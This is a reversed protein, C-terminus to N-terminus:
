LASPHSPKRVADRLQRDFASQSHRRKQTIYWAKTNPTRFLLHCVASLDSRGRNQPTLNWMGVPARQMILDQNWGDQERFEARFAEVKGGADKCGRTQPPLPVAFAEGIFAMNSRAASTRTTTPRPKARARKTRM